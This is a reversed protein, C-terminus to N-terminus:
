SRRLNKLKDEADQPSYPNGFNLRADAAFSREHLLGRDVLLDIAAAMMEAAALKRIHDPDNCSMDLILPDRENMVFNM